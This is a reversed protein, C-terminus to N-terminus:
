FLFPFLIGYTLRRHSLESARNFASTDIAAAASSRMRHERLRVARNSEGIGCRSNTAFKLRRPPRQAQENYRNDTASADVKRTSEVIRQSRLSQLPAAAPLRRGRM